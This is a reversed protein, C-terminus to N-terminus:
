WSSASQHRLTGLRESFSLTLQPLRVPGSPEAADDPGTLESPAPFGLAGPAPYRTGYSPVPCLRSERLTRVTAYALLRTSAPWSRSPRAERFV